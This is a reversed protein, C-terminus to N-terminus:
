LRADLVRKIRRARSKKKPTPAERSLTATSLKAAEATEPAISEIPAAAKAQSTWMSFVGLKM